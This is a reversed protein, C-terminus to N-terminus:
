ARCCLMACCRVAYSCPLLKVWMHQCRVCAQIVMYVARSGLPSGHCVDGIQVCECALLVTWQLWWAASEGGGGMHHTAGHASHTVDCEDLLPVGVLTGALVDCPRWVRWCCDVCALDRGCFGIAPGLQPTGVAPHGQPPAEPRIGGPISGLRGCICFVKPANGHCPSDPHSALSANSGPRIAAAPAM